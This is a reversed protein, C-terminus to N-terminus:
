FFWRNSRSFKMPMVQDKRKHFLTKVFKSYAQQTNRSRQKLNEFFDCLNRLLAGQDKNKTTKLISDRFQPVDFLCQFLANCFCTNGLNKLGQRLFEGHSRQQTKQVHIITGQSNTTPKKKVIGKPNEWPNTDNPEDDLNEEREPEYEDHSLEDRKLHAAPQSADAGQNDFNREVLNKKLSKKKSFYEHKDQFFDLQQQIKDTFHSFSTENEEIEMAGFQRAQSQHKLIVRSNSSSSPPAHSKKSKRQKRKGM